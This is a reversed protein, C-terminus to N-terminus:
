TVEKAFFIDAPNRIDLIDIMKQIEDSGFVRKKMKASFTKPTIGLHEAIQKQTYGKSVIIGKLENTLIM